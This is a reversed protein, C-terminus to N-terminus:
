KRIKVITFLAAIPMWTYSNTPGFTKKERSYIDFFPITPNYTVVNYM